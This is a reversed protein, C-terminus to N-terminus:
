VLAVSQQVFTDVAGFEKMICEARRMGDIDLVPVRVFVRTRNSAQTVSLGYLLFGSQAGALYGIGMGTLGSLGLLFGFGEGFELATPFVSLGLCGGLLMGIDRGADLFRSRTRKREEHQEPRPETIECRAPNFQAQKLSQLVWECTCNDDFIGILIIEKM